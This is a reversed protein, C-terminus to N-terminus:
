GAPSTPYPRQACPVSANRNGAALEHWGLSTQIGCKSPLERLRHAAASTAGALGLGTATTRLGTGERGSARQLQRRDRYFRNHQHAGDFLWVSHSRTMDTGPGVLVNRVRRLTFQLMLVPRSRNSLMSYRQGQSGHDEDPEAASLQTTAGGRVSAACHTRNESGDLLPKAAREALEAAEDKVAGALRASRAEVDALPPDQQAAPCLHRWSTASNTVLAGAGVSTV